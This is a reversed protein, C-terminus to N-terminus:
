GKLAQHYCFPWVYKFLGATSLFLLNAQTYTIMKKGGATFTKNKEQLLQNHFGYLSLIFFFM